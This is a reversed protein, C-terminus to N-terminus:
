FVNIRALLERFDFPKVIYDDAGMGFGQIKDETEGLATLMLIPINPDKQRIIKCVEYGNMSPLNIDLIILDFSNNNFLKTGILGDYAIEIEFGKEILGKGINQAIRQDDEIILIKKTDTM